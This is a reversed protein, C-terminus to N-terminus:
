AKKAFVKFGERALRKRLRVGMSQKRYAEFPEREAYYALTNRRMEETKEKDMSRKAFFECHGCEGCDGNCSEPHHYFRALFGNLKENDVYPRYPNKDLRSDFIFLLDYLNGSYSGKM